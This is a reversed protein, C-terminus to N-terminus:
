EQKCDWCMCRAPELETLWAATRGNVSKLLQPREAVQPGALFRKCLKTCAPTGAFATGGTFSHLLLLTEELVGLYRLYKIEIIFSFLFDNLHEM